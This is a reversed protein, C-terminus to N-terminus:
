FSSHSYPEGEKINLTYGHGPQPIWQFFNEKEGPFFREMAAAIVGGHCVVVSISDKGNHRHSLEKLRHYGLLENLGRNVRSYFSNISDGGGPYAFSGDVSSMWADFEKETKLEEFSKREWDGFNMERLSDIVKYPVKGYIAELTQATRILGSTYCDGDGLPPYVGLSKLEKLQSIGEPLLPLDSSGYYWGKINGETIGHRIFHIYSKM